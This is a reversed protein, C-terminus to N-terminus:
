HKWCNWLDFYFKCSLRTWEDQDESGSFGALSDWQRHFKKHRKFAPEFLIKESQSDIVHYKDSKIKQNNEWRFIHTVRKLTMTTQATREIQNWKIEQIKAELRWLKGKREQFAEITSASLLRALNLFPCSSIFCRPAPNHSPLPWHTAMTLLWVTYVRCCSLCCFELCPQHLFLARNVVVAQTLCHFPSPSLHSM